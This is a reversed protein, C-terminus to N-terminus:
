FKLPLAPCYHGAMLMIISKSINMNIYNICLKVKIDDNIYNIEEIEQGLADKKFVLM